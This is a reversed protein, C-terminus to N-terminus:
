NVVMVLWNVSGVFIPGYGEASTQKIQLRPVWGLLIAQRTMSFAGTIISQSAIITAITALVVLPILLASPCLRYFINDSTPARELVLAAQGTYNLLLSPFVIASWALRIPRAGFQGMDAYLAEAGTVCPFVGGLVLFGSMGGSRLYSIGYMPNIALLVSPHRWIGWVGLVAITVFWTLMIPGFAKGIRATGQCQILLLAVLIMVASTLFYPDFSPAVINLGEVASLVSIAPTVAGDGYILAAGLLGLAVIVPRRKLKVGLLSMLALIGGEGDNDIRMAFSVYKITTVIILTWIILSMTGLIVGRDPKGGTLALVTKLTYLPSTGIDGFVVGLPSLGFARLGPGSEPRNGIKAIM